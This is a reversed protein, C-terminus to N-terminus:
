SFVVKVIEEYLCFGVAKYFGIQFPSCSKRIQHEGGIAMNPLSLLTELGIITLRHCTDFIVHWTKPSMDVNVLVWCSNKFAHGTRVHNKSAVSAAYSHPTSERLRQVRWFDRLLVM